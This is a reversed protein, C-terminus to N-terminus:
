YNLKHEGVKGIVQSHNMRGSKWLFSSGPCGRISCNYCSLGLAKGRAGLRLIGLMSRKRFHFAKLKKYCLNKTIFFRSSVDLHFNPGTSQHKKTMVLLSIMPITVHVM